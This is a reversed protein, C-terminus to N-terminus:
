AGGEKGRILWSLRESSERPIHGPVHRPRYLVGSQEAYACAGLCIDGQQGRGEEERGEWGRLGRVQYKGPYMPRHLVFRHEKNCWTLDLM